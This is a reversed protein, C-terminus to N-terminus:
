RKENRKKFSTVITSRQILDYFYVERHLLRKKMFQEVRDTGYKRASLLGNIKNIPIEACTAINQAVGHFLDGYNNLSGILEAIIEEHKKIM